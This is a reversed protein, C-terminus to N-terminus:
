RLLMVHISRVRQVAHHDQGFRRSKFAAGAVDSVSWSDADVCSSTYRCHGADAAGNVHSPRVRADLNAAINESGTHLPIFGRQLSNARM